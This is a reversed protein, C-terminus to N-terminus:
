LQHYDEFTQEMLEDMESLGQSTTSLLFYHETQCVEHNILNLQDMQEDYNNVDEFLEQFVELVDMIHKSSFM